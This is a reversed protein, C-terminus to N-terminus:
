NMWPWALCNNFVYCNLESTTSGGTYAGNANTLTNTPKVSILSIDVGLERAVM